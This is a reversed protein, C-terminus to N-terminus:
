VDVRDAALAAGARLLRCRERLVVVRREADALRQRADRAQDALEQYSADGALALTVGAKRAEANSGTAALVANAEIVEMAEALRSIEARATAAEGLAADLCDRAAQWACLEDRVAGTTTMM